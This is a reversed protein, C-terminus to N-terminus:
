GSGLEADRQTEWHSGDDVTSVVCTPRLLGIFNNGSEALDLHITQGEFTTGPSTVFHFQKTKNEGQLFPFKLDHCFISYIMFILACKLNM